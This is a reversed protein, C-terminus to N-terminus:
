KGSQQREPAERAPESREARGSAALMSAARIAMSCALIAVNENLPNWANAYVSEGAPPQWRRESPEPRKRALWLSWAEWRRVGFRGSWRAISV